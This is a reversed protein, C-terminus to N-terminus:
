KLVREILRYDRELEEIEIDKIHELESELEVIKEMYMRRVKLENLEVNSADGKKIARINDIYSKSLGKVKSEFKNRLENSMSKKSLRLAIDYFGALIIDRPANNKDKPIDFSHFYSNTYRIIENIEDRTITSYVAKQYNNIPRKDCVVLDSEKPVFGYGSYYSIDKYETSTLVDTFSTGHQRCVLYEELPKIGKLAPYYKGLRVVFLDNTNIVYMVSDPTSHSVNIPFISVKGFNVKKHIKIETIKNPDIGDNSLIFKTFKTAYIKVNPIDMLLEKIAGMNEYHGHTLFKKEIVEDYKVKAELFSYGFNEELAKASALLSYDNEKVIEEIMIDETIEEKQPEEEKIEEDSFKDYALNIYKTAEDNDVDFKAKFEKIAKFKNGECEIILDQAYKNKDDDQKKSKSEKKEEKITTLKNGCNGCFSDNSSVLSGCKSCSLKKEM